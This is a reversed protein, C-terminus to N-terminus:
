DYHFRGPATPPDGEPKVTIYVTAYGINNSPQGDNALIMFSDEGNYDKAPMYDFSGDPYVTVTGHAPDTQKAFTLNDGDADTAFAGARLAM